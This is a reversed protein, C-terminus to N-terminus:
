ARGELENEYMNNYINPIHIKIRTSSMYNNM